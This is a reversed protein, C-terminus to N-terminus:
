RSRRRRRTGAWSATSRPCRRGDDAARRSGLLGRPVLRVGRLERLGRRRLGEPRVQADGSRRPQHDAGAIQQWDEGNTSGEAIYTGEGDSSVRLWVDGDPTSIQPGASIEQGNNRTAVWEYQSFTGKSIYTIKAFTNPNERQWLVFGAQEGELTLTSVDLKTQIQWSGSPAEQLLVNQASATGGIMDGARVKMRLASGDFSRAADNPRLVRWKPDLAAGNFEDNLNPTCNNPVAIEFTVSKIAEENGTRDTSRFEILYMGPQQRRIPAEYPQWEGGNIRWETTDVGSGGAPDTAALTVAVPRTYVGGAGPSAPTLTATTVPAVEDAQALM